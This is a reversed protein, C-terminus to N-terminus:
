ERVDIMRTLMNGIHLTENCILTKKLKYRGDINTDKKIFRLTEATAHEDSARVNRRVISRM